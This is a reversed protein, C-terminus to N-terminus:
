GIRTRRPWATPHDRNCSRRRTKLRPTSGFMESSSAQYFRCEVGSVRIAELMRMAGLGSTNTTHEPEEFSVRVQSQGGLNYIEDPQVTALLNVLRAGDSLDGYHLFLRTDPDHEDQYLHNIRSATFTSARRILGHVQYGKGLLLEALYSGDQGTIGTVFARRPVGSGKRGVGGWRVRASPHPVALPPGGM